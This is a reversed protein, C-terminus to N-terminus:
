IGCTVNPNWDAFMGAPNEEHLWVPLVYLGLGPNPHLMQGLVEPPSDYMADWPEIPVAYAIAGLRLGADQNPIFVMIEPQQLDLELDLLDFNLYHYGMAGEPSAVCEDVNVNVFGATQAAAVSQYGETAARAEDLEASGLSLSVAAIVGSILLIGVSLLSIRTHNM